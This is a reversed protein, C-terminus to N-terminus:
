SLRFIDILDMKDCLRTLDLSSFENTLCEAVQEGTAVHSLGLLGNDLKEKIFFLDIEVYKIRDHQV